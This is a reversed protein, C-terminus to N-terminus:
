SGPMFLLVVRRSQNGVHSSWSTDKSQLRREKFSKKLEMYGPPRFGGMKCSAVIFGVPDVAIKELIQAHNWLPRKDDVDASAAGQRSANVSGQTSGSAM